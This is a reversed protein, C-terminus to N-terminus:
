AGGDKTFHSRHLDAGIPLEDRESSRHHGTRLQRWGPSRGRLPDTQAQENFKEELPGVVFYRQQCFQSYCKAGYAGISIFAAPPLALM